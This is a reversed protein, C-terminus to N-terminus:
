LASPLHTYGNGLANGQALHLQAKLGVRVNDNSGLSAIYSDAKESLTSSFVRAFARM